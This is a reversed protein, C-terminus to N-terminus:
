YCHLEAGREERQRGEKQRRDDAITEKVEPSPPRSIPHHEVWGFEKHLSDPREKHPDLISLHLFRALTRRKCSTWMTPFQAGWLCPMM